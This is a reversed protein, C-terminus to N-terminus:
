KMIKLIDISKLDQRLNINDLGMNLEVNLVRNKEEKLSRLITEFKEKSLGFERYLGNTQNENYFESVRLNYRENKEAYKYLSYAVAIQSINNYAQRLMYQIGDKKVVTGILIKGGLPSEKFTGKLANFANLLTTLSYGEYKNQLLIELEKMSYSKEFQITSNYWNCIESNCVLNIWIIEWAIIPNKSYIDKLIYGLTTKNKTSMEMIESDRLWNILSPVQNKINLGHSTSFFDEMNSFFKILWQEKFGFNNYRNISKKNSNMKVGDTITISNSIVCGKPNFDICKFCNICKNEDVSVKPVVILAGTPCEVECSECHICFVIKNLVKKLYSNFEIDNAVEFFEIITSDNLTTISFSKIKERFKLYGKIENNSISYKLKGLVKLWELINEKPNSLIAKFNPNTDLINIFSDNEIFRGGARIKWNGEKVYNDIDKVGSKEVINKIKDEFPKLTEKYLKSNINDNWNSSFPCIVCGVRTIGNRYASNLLLNHKLIYLFIETSSWILIPSANIVNNHKVSKGIREYKSRRISEEARIGDFTLINVQKNKNSILKLMRYLPATKMVTCCWRHINSPPGMKDWYYMVDQHNQSLYFNLEPYKEQYIKKTEEYIKLSPPIEYGTDSYIVSFENPPIVRSVLDLVVQSDKGGSFSSIFMEIKSSHVIKKGLDEAESLPMIDFSDCDEKIVTHKIKTKEEQIEALKDYDIQSHINTERPNKSYKRYIDNIFELAEYELLFMSSKNKEILLDINIPVLNINKYKEELIIEPEDYINGGKVELIKEGFYFYRRECAWLLPEKSKPYKWYKNLGLLDLEEYFVPRPAINLAEDDSNLTLIIGNNEKDWVIKYM